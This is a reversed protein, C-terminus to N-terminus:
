SEDDFRALELVRAAMGREVAVRPTIGDLAGTPAELFSLAEWGDHTGLARFLKPLVGWLPADFQWKPLMSAKGARGVVICRRSGVWRRVKAEDVELMAATEAVTLMDAAALRRDQEITGILILGGTGDCMLRAGAFGVTSRFPGDCQEVEAGTRCGKPTDAPRSM